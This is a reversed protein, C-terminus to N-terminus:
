IVLLIMAYGMKYRAVPDYVFETFCLLIYTLGLITLNDFMELKHEYKSPMPKIESLVILILMTPVILSVIQLFPFSALFIVSAAFAVRRIYFTMCYWLASSTSRLSIM